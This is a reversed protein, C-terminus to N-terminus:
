RAIVFRQSGFGPLILFYLGQPLQHVDISLSADLTGQSMRRGETNTIYYNTGQQGLTTFIRVQAPVPHIQQNSRDTEQIGVHLDDDSTLSGITDGNIVAGVTSFNYQDPLHNWSYHRLGLQTDLHLDNGYQTQVSLCNVSPTDLVFLLSNGYLHDGTIFYTGTSDRYHKAVLIAESTPLPYDGPFIVGKGPWSSLPRLRFDSATDLTWSYEPLNQYIHEGYAGIFLSNAYGTFTLHGPGEERGQIHFKTIWSFTHWNQSTISSFQVIDGPQFPFFDDLSPILSGANLGQIGILEYRTSDHLHWLTIGHNRSWCVTDNQATTMTRVSDMAGLVSEETIDSLMGMTGSSPDFPWQDNLSATQKLDYAGPGTFSWTGAGIHCEMQMFQPLNVQVNCGEPCAPCLKAVKNLEYRFSDLSLTDVQTALKQHSITDTGDNSYNYKYDPNILAWNQASLLSCQLFLVFLFYHRM